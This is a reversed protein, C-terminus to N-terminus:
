ALNTALNTALEQDDPIARRDLAALRDLVEQPRPSGLPQVELLQRALGWVEVGVFADPVIEFADCQSMEAAWIQRRQGQRQGQRQPAGLLAQAVLTGDNPGAECVGAVLNLGEHL